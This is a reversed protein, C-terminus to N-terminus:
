SKKWITGSPTDELTIGKAILQNRIEDARKFDRNKRAEERDKILKEIEPAINDEIEPLISLVSDIKKLTAEIGGKDKEAIKKDKMLINIEKILDYLAALGGGTDFDDDMKKEFDKIATKLAKELNKDSEPIDSKYNKLNILFDKLRSLGNEAQALIEHSFNIPSRYHTGLMLLRVALPTYEKFIDKLTFFNNLSKSMKENNINVFGNHLWYKVYPKENGCESQAIEDEHHPFILDMGGGHIEFTEGLIAASMASCEIHWGPRGKGWPSPWKPEGPKAKKWLVFDHPNRKKDDKEIRAGTQLEDINQHSLKGYEAFKAVEFYVGDALEYAYGKEVLKKILAIMQEIYETAKPQKDPKAIKLAAYDKQYEPIIKDALESVTIGEQNARKIMKDDIDTYNSVYTVDYGKYILYKRIVDFAIASRGHGLHGFDYVTPGCVYIGVKKDKIPQFEEKKGSLTNKVKM